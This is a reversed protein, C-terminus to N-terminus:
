DEKLVVMEDPTRERMSIAGTFCLYNCMKCGICKAPDTVPYGDEDKSIALYPCRSCNGCRVCLEHDSSSIKKVASLDMFDVIPDPLAIGVLEQVSDIGRNAMLHSLGSKLEDIIHYGMKTPMSCFQVTRCGLALFDAAEKYNMPGGNGSIEVGIPAAKALSLYSINLAGTGAMGVIVGREWNSGHGNRFAMTPFTNALTVGAKSDPFQDFSEKIALLIAEISTVAGTLKFIKPIDPDGIELVWSIIKQSLQANQSVIDGETGDGGQPCSLSYEIAMVGAQELKGTNNQWGQRDMEDNGSVPGGTSAMTMRDPYLTVLQAVEKCVKDLQHGSVNDCNAYTNNSFKFMYDAPIHIPVNDFSTKMIAGPWGAEYAKKMQEFGDTPPAASLLFPSSLQHGFFDTTLDVPLFNYGPIQVTSKVCGNSNRSYVPVPKEKFWADVQEACNKGAASAEVVTTPGEIFDGALFIPPNDKIKIGPEAGIAIIIQDIDERIISSGSIPKILNLDFSDGSRLKVKQASIGAIKDNKCLIENIQIRTNVDVGSKILADMEKKDLPMESLNELAFIEVSEAGHILAAMSCDFATAGGGIVAVNGNIDYKDPNQLFSIGPIAKDENPIGPFIPNWLGAAIVIADFGESLLDQPNKIEIGPIFKINSLKLTWEIDTKLVDKDLRFDPILNCMGGAINEKEYLTIDYGRQALLAASALGAPGSGIIAVGKGNKEVSTLNPMLDLQKAKEVITAQVAPIRVPSDFKDHVCAAMCHKEPCTQGCIGGLPNKGMILAASRLIDSPEGVTVAKIFDAPSCDCPCAKMCPKEECYECKEIEAQLQADTLFLNLDYISKGPDGPISNRKKIIGTM